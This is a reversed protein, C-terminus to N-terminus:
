MVNTASVYNLISKCDHVFEIIDGLCTGKIKIINVNNYPAAKLYNLNNIRIM